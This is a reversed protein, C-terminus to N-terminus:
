TSFLAPSTNKPRFAKGRMADRQRKCTRCIRAFKPKGSSSYGNPALEYPHGNPCMSKKAHSASPSHGRLINIRHSVPQLHSPNVCLVNGCLHDLEMGDPVPGRLEIWAFRHALMKKGGGVRLHGYRGPANRHGTWLWCSKTKNVRKWFRGSLTEM